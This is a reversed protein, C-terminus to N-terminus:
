IGVSKHKKKPPGVYVKLLGPNKDREYIVFIGLLSNKKDNGIMIKIPSTAISDLMTYNATDILVIRYLFDANYTINIFFYEKVEKFGWSLNDKSRLYKYRYQMKEWKGAEMGSEKVPARELIVKISSYRREHLEIDFKYILRVKTSEDEHYDVGICSSSHTNSEDEHYGFSFCSTKICWAKICSTKICSTKICSSSYKSSESM